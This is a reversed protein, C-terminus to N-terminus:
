KTNSLNSIMVTLQMESKPVYGVQQMDYLLEAVKLTNNSRHYNDFVTRHMGFSPASGFIILIELIDKQLSLNVLLTSRSM